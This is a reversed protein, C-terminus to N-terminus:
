RSSDEVHISDLARLLLAETVEASRSYPNSSRAGLKKKLSTTKPNVGIELAAIWGSATTSTMKQITEVKSVAFGHKHQLHRIYRAQKESARPAPM